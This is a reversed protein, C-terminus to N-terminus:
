YEIVVEVGELERTPAWKKFLHEEVISSDDEYIVGTLADEIARALKLVDPRQTPAAPMGPKVTGDAKYHAIPRPRYFTMTVKLPYTHPILPKGM